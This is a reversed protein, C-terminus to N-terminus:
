RMGQPVYDPLGKRRAMRPALQAFRPLPEGILPMAWRVFGDTVDTRSPAIWEAPFTREANAVVELPVEGYQVAYAKGPMRLITAM